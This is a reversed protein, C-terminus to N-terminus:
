RNFRRENQVRKAIADVNEGNRVNPVFYVGILTAVLAVILPVEGSSIQNDDAYQTIGSIIAGLFAVWTKLASM